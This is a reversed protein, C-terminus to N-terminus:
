PHAPMMEHTCFQAYIENMPLFCKAMCVLFIAMKVVHFVSFRAAQLIKCNNGLLTRRAILPKLYIYSLIFLSPLTSTTLMPSCM